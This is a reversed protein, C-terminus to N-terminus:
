RGRGSREPSAARQTPRLRAPSLWDSGYGGRGGLLGYTGNQLNLPGGAFGDLANDLKLAEVSGASAAIQQVLWIMNNLASPFQGGFGAVEAAVEWDTGYVLLEDPSTALGCAVRMLFYQPTEIVKHGMHGYDTWAHDDSIIFM